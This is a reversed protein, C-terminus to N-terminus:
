GRLHAISKEACHIHATGPLAYMQQEIVSFALMLFSMFSELPTAQSMSLMCSGMQAM